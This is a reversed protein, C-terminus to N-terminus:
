PEIRHLVDILRQEREQRVVDTLNDLIQATRVVLIGEKDVLELTEVDPRLYMGEEEDEEVVLTMGPSLNLRSRLAKPILIHGSEDLFLEIVQSM